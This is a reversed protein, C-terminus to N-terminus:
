WSTHNWGAAKYWRTGRFAENWMESDPSASPLYFSLAGYHAADRVHCTIGGNYGSYWSSTLPRYPVVKCFTREWDAYDESSLLHAMASNMDFCPTFREAVPSYRQIGVTFPEAKEHFLRIIHPTTQFALEKLFETCVASLVVGSFVSKPYYSHYANVIGEIDAACLAGMMNHYPAGPGPIEAPSAVIWDAVDKLEYATEVSQMFCADFFIYDLHPLTELVGRLTSLEMETGTNTGANSTDDIGFSRRLSKKQPIWGSAHSAMILGYHSSPFAQVMKKLALQMVLSDCSDQDKGYAYWEVLRRNPLLRYIVPRQLGDYYVLVNCSDPIANSGEIMENLDSKLDYSLSNEGALYVLVTRHSLVNDKPLPLTDHCGSILLLGFFLLIQFLQKRM